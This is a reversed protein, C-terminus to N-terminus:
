AGRRRDYRGFLRDYGLVYVFQLAAALCFPTVFLGAAIMPGAIGPGASQPVQFSAANVSAALGRREDRVLTVIQAQRAGVSAGGSALRLMYVLAALWFWPMFPLALLLLVGIGRSWVVARSLGHRTALKGTYLAMVGTLAFTASMVPAISDPGAHFKLAFWYAILPGTLGM